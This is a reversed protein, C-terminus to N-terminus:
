FVFAVLILVAALAGVIGYRIKPSRFWMITAGLSLLGIVIMRWTQPTWSSVEDAAADAGGRASDAASNPDVDPVSTWPLDEPGLIDRGLFATDLDFVTLAAVIIGLFLALYLINKM